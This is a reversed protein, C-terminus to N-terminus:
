LEKNLTLIKDSDEITFKIDRENPNVIKVLGKNAFYEILKNFRKFSTKKMNISKDLQIVKSGIGANVYERDGELQALVRILAKIAADDPENGKYINIQATEKKKADNPEIYDEIILISDAASNFIERKSDKRTTVLVVDKQYRRLLTMVVSYDSDNTVFIFKSISPKDLYLKEFADLSIVLDARNKKGSIHPTERIEFNLDKLQERYKAISSSQGCAIKYAYIAESVEESDGHKLSIDDVINKINLKSDKPVNINELDIYICLLDKKQM